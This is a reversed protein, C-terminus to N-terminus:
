AETGAVGQKRLRMLCFSYALNFLIPYPAPFSYTVFDCFRLVKLIGDIDFEYMRPLTLLFVVISIVLVESQFIIM